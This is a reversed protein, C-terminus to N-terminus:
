KYDEEDKSFFTFKNEKSFMDVFTFTLTFYFYSKKQKIAYRNDHNILPHNPHSM